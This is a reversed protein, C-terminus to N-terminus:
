WGAAKVIKAVSEEPTGDNIRMEHKLGIPASKKYWETMEERGFFRAESRQQHRRVTEEFPVDFYVLVVQECEVLERIYEEYYLHNMIGDILVHRQNERAISVVQQIVSRTAEKFNDRHRFVTESLYDQEIYVVDPRKACILRAITSKGSGSPGRLIIIKATM